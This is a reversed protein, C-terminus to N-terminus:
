FRYQGRVSWASAGSLGDKRDLNIHQVNFRLDKSLYFNVGATQTCGAEGSGLARLDLCSYRAVLEIAGSDSKPKLSRLAGDRYRHRDKGLLWSAAIYYGDLTFDDNLHADVRQSLYEGQVALQGSVWAAEVGFTMADVARVKKPSKLVSGSISLEADSRLRYDGGDYTEEGLSAGVHFHRKGSLKPTYVLRGSLNDIRMRTDNEDNDYTFVGVSGTVRGSTENVKFGIGREPAFVSAAMARENFWNNKSSSSNDLGFDPKPQGVALEYGHGLHIEAFLDDVGPENDGEGISLEMVAAWQSKRGFSFEISADRVSSELPSREDDDYVGSLRDINLLLAGSVEAKLPAVEAEDDAAMLPGSLLCFAAGALGARRAAIKM